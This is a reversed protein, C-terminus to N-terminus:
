RPATKPRYDRTDICGDYSARDIQIWDAGNIGRRNQVTPSTPYACAVRIWRAQQRAILKIEDVVESLDQDQSFIVAVDYERRNAGAIVDLALRVDIGKEEGSLFTHKGYGPIEVTKNRYRLSRSFVKVRQRGMAALKSTWFGNWFPDDAIDPVGTYFRARSLNWTRTACVCESLKLIDYNPFSYGFADKVHHYLNQGDVFTVARKIAPEILQLSGGCILLGARPREAPRAPLM